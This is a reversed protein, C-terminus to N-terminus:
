SYKNLYNLIYPMTWIYPSVIESQDLSKNHYREGSKRSIISILQYFLM